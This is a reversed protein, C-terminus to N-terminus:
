VGALARRDISEGKDFELSESVSEGRGRLGGIFAEADESDQFEYLCVQCMDFEISGASGCRPCYLGVM